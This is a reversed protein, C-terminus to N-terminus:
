IKHWMLSQSSYSWFAYNNNYQIKKMEDVTIIVRSSGKQCKKSIYIGFQCFDASLKIKPLHIDSIICQSMAIQICDMPPWPRPATPLVYVVNSCIKYKQSYKFDVNLSNPDVKSSNFQTNIVSVRCWEWDVTGVSIPYVHLTVNLDFLFSM